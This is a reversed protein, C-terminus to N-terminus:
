EPGGAAGDVHVCKVCEGDVPVDRAAGEGLRAGAGQDQAAGVTEAAADDQGAAIQADAGVDVEAPEGARDEEATAGKLDVRAEGRRAGKAQAGTGNGDLDVAPLDERVLGGQSADPGEAHAASPDELGTRDVEQGGR